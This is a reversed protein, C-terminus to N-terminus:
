AARGKRLTEILEQLHTKCGSILVNGNGVRVYTYYIPIPQITSVINETDTTVDGNEDYGTDRIAEECKTCSM